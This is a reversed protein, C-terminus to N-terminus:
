LKAIQMEKEEIIVIVIIPFLGGDSPRVVDDYSLGDNLEPWPIGIKKSRGM